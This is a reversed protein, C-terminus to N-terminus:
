DNDLKVKPEKLLLEIKEILDFPNVPKLIAHKMGFMKMMLLHEKETFFGTLAIIPISKTRSSNYFEDALQFGSKPKMKMDLIILDPKVECAVEFALGSNPVVEVEYNSYTLIEKLEELLEVDDDVVMIKPNTEKKMQQLELEEKPQTQLFPFM